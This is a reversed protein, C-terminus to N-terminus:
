QENVLRTIRVHFDSLQSDASQSDAHQTNTLQLDALQSGLLKRITLQLDLFRHTPSDALQRNSCVYQQGCLTEWMNNGMNQQGCITAWM